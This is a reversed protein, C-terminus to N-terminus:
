EKEKDSFDITITVDEQDTKEDVSVPTDSLEIVIDEGRTTDEYQKKDLNRIYYTLGIIVLISIVILLYAINIFLKKLEM